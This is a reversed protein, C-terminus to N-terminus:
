IHLDEDILLRHAQPLRVRSRIKPPRYYHRVLSAPHTGTRLVAVLELDFRAVLWCLCVRYTHAQYVPRWVRPLRLWATWAPANTM